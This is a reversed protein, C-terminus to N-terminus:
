WHFAVGSALGSFHLDEIKANKLKYDLSRWVTFVEGWRFTYGIGDPSAFYLSRLSLATLKRNDPSTM